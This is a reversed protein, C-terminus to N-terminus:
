LVGFHGIPIIQKHAFISSTHHHSCALLGLVNSTDFRPLRTVCLLFVWFNFPDNSESCSRLCEGLGYWSLSFAWATIRFPEDLQAM